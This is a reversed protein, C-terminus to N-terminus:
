DINKNGRKFTICFKVLLHQTRTTHCKQHFYSNKLQEIYKVRNAETLDPEHNHSLYSILEDFDGISPSSYYKM